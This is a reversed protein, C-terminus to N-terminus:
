EVYDIIWQGDETHCGVTFNDYQAIGDYEGDYLCSKAKELSNYKGIVAVLQDLTKGVYKKATSKTAKKTPAQTVAITTPEVTTPQVTTPQVTTPEETTPEVTTPEVTTTEEKTIVIVTTEQTTAEATTEKTDKDSSCGALGLVLIASLLFVSVKRM